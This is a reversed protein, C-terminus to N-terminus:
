PATPTEGEPSATAWGVPDLYTVASEKRGTMAGVRCEAPLMM